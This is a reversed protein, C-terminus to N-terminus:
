AANVSAQRELELGGRESRAPEPSASKRELGSRDRDGFAAAVSREGLIRFSGGSYGSVTRTEHAHWLCYPVEVQRVTSHRDAIEETLALDAPQRINGGQCTLTESIRSVKQSSLRPRCLRV